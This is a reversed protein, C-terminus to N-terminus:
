AEVIEAAARMAEIVNRIESASTGDTRLTPLEAELADAFINLAEPSSTVVDRLAEKFVVLGPEREQQAVTKEKGTM